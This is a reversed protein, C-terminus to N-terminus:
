WSTYSPKSILLRSNSQRTKAWLGFYLIALCELWNQSFLPHNIREENYDLFFFCAGFEKPHFVWSSPWSCLLSCMHSSTTMSDVLKLICSVFWIGWVENIKSWDIVDRPTHKQQTSLGRGTSVAGSMLCIGIAAICMKAGLLALVTHAWAVKDESTNDSLKTSDM